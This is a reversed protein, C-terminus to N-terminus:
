RATSVFDAEQDKSFGEQLGGACGKRPGHM